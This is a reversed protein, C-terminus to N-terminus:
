MMSRILRQNESEVQNKWQNQRSRFHSIHPYQKKYFENHCDINSKLQRNGIHKCLFDLYKQEHELLYCLTKPLERNLHIAPAHYSTLNPM